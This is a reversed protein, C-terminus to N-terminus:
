IDEFAPLFDEGCSFGLESKKCGAGGPVLSTGCCRHLPPFQGSIKPFVGWQFLQLLDIGKEVMPGIHQILIQVINGVVPCCGKFEDGARTITFVICYGFIKGYGRVGKEKGDDNM